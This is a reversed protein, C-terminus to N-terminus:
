NMADLAKPVPLQRSEFHSKLSQLFKPLLDKPFEISHEVADQDFAIHIRNSAAVVGERISKGSALDEGFPATAYYRSFVDRKAPIVVSTFTESDMGDFVGQSGLEIMTSKLFEAARPVMLCCYQAQDWDAFTIKPDDGAFLFEDCLYVPEAAPVMGDCYLEHFTMQQASEEAPSNSVNDTNDQNTTNCASLFLLCLAFITPLSNRM